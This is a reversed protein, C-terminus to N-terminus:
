GQRWEDTIQGFVHVVMGNVDAIPWLSCHRSHVVAGDPCSLGAVVSRCVHSPRRTRCVCCGLRVMVMMLKTLTRCRSRVLFPDINERYRWKVLQTFLDALNDKGSTYLSTRPSTMKPKLFFSPNWHDRRGHQPVSRQTRQARRRRFVRYYLSINFIHGEMVFMVFHPGSSM